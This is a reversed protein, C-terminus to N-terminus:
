GEITFQIFDTTRRTSATEVTLRVKWLGAESLFGSEVLYEVYENASLGNTAVAGLTGTKIVPTGSPTYFNLTLTTAASIDEGVGVRIYGGYDAVNM